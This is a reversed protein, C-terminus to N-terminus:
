NPQKGSFTRVGEDEDADMQGAATTISEEAATAQKAGTSFEERLGTSFKSLASGIAGSSPLKGFAAGGQMGTIQEGASGIGSSLGGVKGGVARIEEPDYKRGTM